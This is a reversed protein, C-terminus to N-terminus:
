EKKGGRNCIGCPLMNMLEANRVSVRRPSFMGCCDPKLHRRIGGDTPIWVLRGKSLPEALDLEEPLMGWLLLTLTADDLTGTQPLNNSEQFALIAQLTYKDFLYADNSENLFGQSILAHQIYELAPGGDDLQIYCVCPEQFCVCPLEAFAFDFCFLLCLLILLLRRMYRGGFFYTNTYCSGVYNYLFKFLATSTHCCVGQCGGGGNTIIGGHLSPFLVGFPTRESLRPLHSATPLTPPVHSRLM